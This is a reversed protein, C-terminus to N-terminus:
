LMLRMPLERLRENAMEVYDPNLEIGLYDRGLGYAVLATTGSGMFPDLVICPQTPCPELEFDDLLTPDADLEEQPIPYETGCGCTPQWGTTTNPNADKWDQWAQGASGFYGAGKSKAEGELKATARQPGGTTVNVVRKWPAGCESCAGRESTGAKICPEILDMPFVAFHAGRFPKTNVLWWDRLNAGTQCFDTNRTDHLVHSSGLTGFVDLSTGLEDFHLTLLASAGKHFVDALFESAGVDLVDETRPRARTQPIALMPNAGSAVGPPAPTHVITARIPLNGAASSKLLRTVLTTPATGLVPQLNVVFQWEPAEGIITFCISKIVKFDQAKTTVTSNITIKSEGLHLEGRLHATSNDARLTTDFKPTLASSCPATGRTAGAALPRRVAFSDYFYRKSKTLLFIMETAKSPRDRVSEPMPNGKCWTIASRLWWGDAQLALAVRAPIFCLDKPKLGVEEAPMSWKRGQGQEDGKGGRRDGGGAFSDGLNLFVTGEPKLVRKVEAFIAVMRAVYLEPTAELGLQGDVGYDRLGWYPPSTVVCDVTEADLTALTAQAEGFIIRHESM